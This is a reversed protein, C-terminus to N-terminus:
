SACCYNKVYGNVGDKVRTIFCDLRRGSKAEIFAFRSVRKGNIYYFKGNATVTEILQM